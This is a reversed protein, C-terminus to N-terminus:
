RLGFGPVLPDYDDVVFVHDGTNWVEAGATRGACM